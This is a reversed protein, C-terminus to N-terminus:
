ELTSAALGRWCVACAATPARWLWIGHSVLTHLHDAINLLETRSLPGRDGGPHVQPSAYPDGQHRLLVSAPSIKPRSQPPQQYPPTFLRDRAPSRLDSVSM